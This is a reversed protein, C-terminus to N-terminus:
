SYYHTRHTTANAHRILGGDRFTAGEVSMEQACSYTLVENGLAIGTPTTIFGRPQDNCLFHDVCVIDNLPFRPLAISPTDLVVLGPYNVEALAQEMYRNVARIAGNNRWYNMLRLCHENSGVCYPHPMTSMWVIHYAHSCHPRLKLREIAKAVGHGQRPNRIFARPPFFQLDWSGTQLVLTQPQQYEEASRPCPLEDLMKILRTAFTNDAYSVGSVNVSGHYRGMNLKDVYRDMTIDFQYRMHSEGIFWLTQRQLCKKMASVTLYKPVQGRWEYIEHADGFISMHLQHNTKETHPRVLWLPDSHPDDSTSHVVGGSPQQKDTKEPKSESGKTYQACVPGKYVTHHLSSFKSHGVDDFADFHEYHLAITVDSCLFAQNSNVEPLVVPSMSAVKQQDYDTPIPCTVTYKSNFQDIVNCVALHRTSQLYIEFTAGGPSALKARCGSQEIEFTLSGKEITAHGYKSQKDAANTLSVAYQCDVKYKKDGDSRQWLPKMVKERQERLHYRCMYSRFGKEPITSQECADTARFFESVNLAAATLREYVAFQELENGSHFNRYLAECRSTVLCFILVVFFGTSVM